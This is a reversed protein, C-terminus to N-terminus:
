ATRLLKRSCLSGSCYAGACSQGGGGNNGEKVKRYVFWMFLALLAIFGGRSYSLVIGILFVTLVGGLVFKHFTSRSSEFLYWVVPLAMNLSLALDNPDNTLGSSGGHTGGRLAYVEGNL